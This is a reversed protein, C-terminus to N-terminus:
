RGAMGGRDHCRGKGPYKAAGRRQPQYIGVAAPRYPNTCTLLVCRRSLFARWMSLAGRRAEVPGRDRSMARIPGYTRLNAKMVGGSNVIPPAGCPASQRCCGVCM